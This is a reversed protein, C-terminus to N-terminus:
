IACAPCGPRPELRGDYGHPLAEYRSGLRFRAALFGTADGRWSHVWAPTQADRAVREVLRVGGLATERADLDGYPTYVGHCGLERRAFRQGPSAFDITCRLEPDEEFLCRLCGKAGYRVLLAHGGIGYPELWTYIVPVPFRQEAFEDNLRLPVSQNGIAIVIADASRFLDPKSALAEEASTAFPIVKLGPVHLELESKL